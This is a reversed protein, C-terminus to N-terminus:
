ASVSIATTNSQNSSDGFVQYAQLLKMIQKLITAESTQSDTSSVANSTTVTSTDTQNAQDYAMAEQFSVKGDGNTDAKDFNDIIKSILASRKSDSSGIEQLQSTLEAKTFGTDNGDPPPPPPMAGVGNSNGRDVGNMRMNNAQFYAAMEDQTVKSDNNSDMQTFIDDASATSNSSDSVKSFASELGSKDIYGQNQTDLKAFLSSAWTSAMSSISSLM